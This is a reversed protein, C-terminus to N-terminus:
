RVAAIGGNCLPMSTVQAYNSIRLLAISATFHQMQIMRSLITQEAHQASTMLEASLLFPPTERLFNVGASIPTTRAPILALTNAHILIFTHTTSGPQTYSSTLSEPQHRSHPFASRQPTSGQPDEFSLYTGDASMTPFSALHDPSCLKSYLFLSPFPVFSHCTNPSM